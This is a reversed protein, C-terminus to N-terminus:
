DRKRVSVRAPRVLLGKFAYGKQFVQAVTEDDGEEEAPVRMMAEMKEPDFPEGVPDIVEVGADELVRGFKREVLDVGEMIGDATANSLDLEAVRQLDDLVDLLRGVLEAQARTWAELREQEVRRRYNNFEAALRLHRDNLADLEGRMAALDEEPSGLLEDVEAVDEDVVDLGAEAPEDEAGADDPEEPREDADGPGDQPQEMEDTMAESDTM